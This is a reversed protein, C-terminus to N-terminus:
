AAKEGSAPKAEEVLVETKKGREALIMNIAEPLSYGREIWLAKAAKDAASTSYLIKNYESVYLRGIGVGLGSRVLVESYVGQRTHVSELLRFEGESMALRGGRKVLEISEPKQGLLWMHASNEVISQAGETEYLDNISQTCICASAGFKRLQRYWTILFSKTEKSALLGFAEDVLLLKPMTLPLHDMASQIQYMLQLLVVRQLHERGTLQQLELIVLSNNLDCTNPGFFFRGYEGRQTFPFLQKGLDVLRPDEESLLRAEIDDINTQRGLANWVESLIRKMEAAEFDDYGERPAAMIELISSLIDSEESFNKVNTFPNLCIDVEDTFEIYTGNFISSLPKYSFGKDIVWARGGISLFNEILNNALFSKGMGSQAAVVINMNGDTDNPSVKMLNGDRAFFTMLPTGTGRWSGLAPLIPVAHRTPMLRYRNCAMKMDEDAGFPLLQGFLPLVFYRDEMVSFGLERMMSQVETSAQVVKDEDESFVTIGLYGFILRDGEEKAEMAIKQSQLRKAWDPVYKALQGEVQRTTWAFDRSLEQSKAENDPYLINFTVLVPDRLAKTGKMLDAMYRMGMGAFVIEPYRKVSLVRCKADSGLTIGKEDVTIANDNDLLQNCIYTSEDHVTWPSRRWMANPGHNLIGEMFRIYRSSNLVEFRFGCNKLTSHFTNKLEKYELLDERTPEELGHKLSVTIVLQTQRLKPGGINIPRGTLERMFEVRKKSIEQLLPNEQGNRMVEFRHLTDEIDPSAYMCFQLATGTPFHLNLLQNLNDMTKQDIGPLPEAIVGFGIRDPSLVFLGEDDDYAEVCGFLRALTEQKEFANM